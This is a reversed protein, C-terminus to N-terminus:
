GYRGEPTITDPGERDWDRRLGEHHDNSGIEVPPPSRPPPSRPQPSYSQHPSYGGMQPSSAFRPSDMEAITGGNSTYSMHPGKMGSPAYTTEPVYQAPLPEAPEAPRRRRACFYVAGLLLALGAAGGVAIGAISGSGLTSSSSAAATTTATASSTSSTTTTASTFTSTSSTSSSLSTSTSASGQASSSNPLGNATLNVYAACDPNPEALPCSSAQCLSLLEPGQAPNLTIPPACRVNYLSNMQTNFTEGDQESFGYHETAKTVQDIFHGLDTNNLNMFKHVYALSLPGGTSPPPPPPLTCGFIHAFANFFHSFLRSCTTRNALLILITFIIMSKM